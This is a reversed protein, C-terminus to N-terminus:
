DLIIFGSNRIAESHLHCLTVYVDDRAIEWLKPSFHFRLGRPRCADVYSAYNDTRRNFNLLMREKSLLSHEKRVRPADSVAVRTVPRSVTLIRRLKPFSPLHCRGLIVYSIYSRNCSYIIALVIAIRLTRATRRSTTRYVPKLTACHTM